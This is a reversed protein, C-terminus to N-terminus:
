EFHNKKMGKYELLTEIIRKNPKKNLCATLLGNSYDIAGKNKLELLHELSADEKSCYEEFTNM